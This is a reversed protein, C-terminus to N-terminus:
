RRAKAAATKGILGVAEGKKVEMGIGKLVWHVEHRRRSQFLVREKLSSGKDYYVKFKKTVGTVKIVSTNEPKM